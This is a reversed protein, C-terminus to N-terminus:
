KTNYKTINYQRYLLENYDMNYKYISGQVFDDTFILVKKNTKEVKGLKEQSIPITRELIINTTKLWMWKVIGFNM